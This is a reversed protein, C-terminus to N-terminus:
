SRWRMGAEYARKVDARTYGANDLGNDRIWREAPSLLRDEARKKEALGRRRLPGQYSDTTTIRREGGRRNHRRRDYDLRTECM